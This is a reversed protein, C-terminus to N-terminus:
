RSFEFFGIGPNAFSAAEDFVFAPGPRRQKGFAQEGGEQGGKAGRGGADDGYGGERQQWGGYTKVVKRRCELQSFDM